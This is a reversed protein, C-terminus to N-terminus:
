CSGAVTAAERSWYSPMAGYPNGTGPLDTVFLNGARRARSLSVAQGLDAVPTAYLVHAFRDPQYRRIWSPVQDSLYTAYSGEFVMVVNAVSMFNPDPYTGPNLWIVANPVTARIYNALMRYYPLEGPTGQILDLFMGNVGYWAKYERVEAEVSRASRTGYVTSSYGLVTIGAAQAQRVLAKFHPDPATGPGSDVNLLIVGPGPKTDIAQNWPGNDYFYAPVFTRQCGGSTGAGPPPSLAKSPEPAPSAASIRSRPRKRPRAPRGSRSAAPSPSIAPIPSAAARSPGPPPSSAGCACAAAASLLCAAAARVIVPLRAPVRFGRRV